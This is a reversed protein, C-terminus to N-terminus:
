FRSEIGLVRAAMCKPRAIAFSTLCGRMRSACCHHTVRRVKSTAPLLHNLQGRWRAPNEGKDYVATSKAWDYHGRNAWAVVGVEPRPNVTNGIPELVKLVLPREIAQIPASWRFPDAYTTLTSTWQAAHQANRWGAAIRPLTPRPRKRSSVTKATALIRGARSASTRDESPFDIGKKRLRTPVRGAKIPAQATTLCVWRLLRAWAGDRAKGRSVLGIIWIEFRGGHSAISGRGRRPSGPPLERV